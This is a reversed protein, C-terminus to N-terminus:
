RKRRNEVAHQLLGLWLASILYVVIAGGAVILASFLSDRGLGLGLGMARDATSVAAILLAFALILGTIIKASRRRARLFNRIPQMESKM